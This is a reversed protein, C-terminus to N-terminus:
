VRKRRSGRVDCEESMDKWKLEEVEIKQFPTLKKVFVSIYSVLTGRGEGARQGESQASGEYDGEGKGARVENLTASHLFHIAM